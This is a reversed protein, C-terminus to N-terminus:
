NTIYLAAEDIISQQKYNGTYFKAILNYNDDTMVYGDIIHKQKKYSYHKFVYFIISKNKSETIIRHKIYEPIHYNSFMKIDTQQLHGKDFTFGNCDVNNHARIFGSFQSDGWVNGKSISDCQKNFTKHLSNFKMHNGTIWESKKM